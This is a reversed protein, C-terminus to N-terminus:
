LMTPSVSKLVTIIFFRNIFTRDKKSSACAARPIFILPELKALPKSFTERFLYCKPSRLPGFSMLCCLPPFPIGSLVLACSFVPLQLSYWTGPIWCLLLFSSHWFICVLQCLTSSISSQLGPKSKPGYRLPLMFDNFLKTASTSTILSENVFIGQETCM